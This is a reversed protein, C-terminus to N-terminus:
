VELSYLPTNSDAMAPSQQRYDQGLTFLLSNSAQARRLLEAYSQNLLHLAALSAKVREGLESAPAAVQGANALHKLGTCLVEQRWLSEQLAHLKNVAIAAMAHRIEDCLEDIRHVYLESAPQTTQELKM